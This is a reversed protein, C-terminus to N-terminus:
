ERIAITFMAKRIVAKHFLNEFTVVCHHDLQDPEEGFIHPM